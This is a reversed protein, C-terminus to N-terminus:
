HITDDTSRGPTLWRYKSIRRPNRPGHGPRPADRHPKTGSAIQGRCSFGDAVILTNADADRVKPLLVREGAAMSVRYREGAEYGFSGAMGCYGSDPIEIAMGMGELVQKEADFGMVSHHHCHPQVLAARDLRPLPWDAAQETLLESLLYSQARLRQADADDPLMNTLEDRFVALCSPELGM